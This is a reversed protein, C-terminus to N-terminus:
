SSDLGIDAWSHWVRTEAGAKRLLTISRITVHQSKLLDKCSILIRGAFTEETHGSYRDCNIQFNAAIINKYTLRISSKGKASLSM